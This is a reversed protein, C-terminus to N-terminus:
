APREWTPRSRRARRAAVEAPAGAAIVQGFDLVVVQDSVRMVLGM